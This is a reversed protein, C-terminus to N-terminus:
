LQSAEIFAQDIQGPGMGIAAGIENVLPNAREIYPAYEWYISSRRNGTAAIADAVGAASIGHDEMWLRVQTATISEPVAQQVRSVIEGAQSGMSSGDPEGAIRVGLLQSLEQSHDPFSFLIAGEPVTEDAETKGAFVFVPVGTPTPEFCNGISDLVPQCETCVSYRGTLVYKRDM